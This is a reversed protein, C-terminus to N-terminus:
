YCCFVINWLIDLVTSLPFTGTPYFLSGAPMDVQLVELAAYAEYM